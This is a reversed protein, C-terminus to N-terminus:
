PVGDLPEFPSGLAVIGVGRALNPVDRPVELERLIRADEAPDPARGLQAISGRLDVESDRVPLSVPHPPIAVLRQAPIPPGRPAPILSGPEIEPLHVPSALDDM